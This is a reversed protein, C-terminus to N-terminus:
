KSMRDHYDESATPPTRRGDIDTPKSSSLSSPSSSGFSSSQSGSRKDTVTFNGKDIVVPKNGIENVANKLSKDLGSTDLEVQVKQPQNNQTPSPQQVVQQVVPAPAAQQTAQVPTPQTNVNSSQATPPAVQQVPQQTTVPAAQQVPAPQTTSRPVSLGSDTQTWGSPQSVPQQNQNPNFVPQPSQAAAPAAQKASVSQNATSTSPTSVSPKDHNIILTGDKTSSAQSTQPQSQSQTQTSKAAPNAAGDRIRKLDKVVDANLSGANTSSLVDAAQEPSINGSKIMKSQEHASQNAFKAAALGGAKSMATQQALDFTMEGTKTPNGEADKEIIMEATGDSKVSGAWAKLTESKSVAGTGQLTGAIDNRIGKNGAAFQQNIASENAQLTQDILKMGYDGKTTLLELSAMVKVNDGSNIASELSQKLEDANQNQFEAKANKVEVQEDSQAQGRIQSMLRQEARTPDRQSENNQMELLNQRYKENSALKQESEVTGAKFKSRERRASLRNNITRPTSGARALFGKFGRRNYNGMRQDSVNEFARKRMQKAHTTLGKGAGVNLVGTLRNLTGGATKMIVPTIFLPIITMGAGAIQVLFDESSAMVIAGALKSVSFVLAVAPFMALLVMFLKMWKRFLNETNPLLFAVFALPAVVVLLVILAQRLVLVIVVTLVAFLAAVLIPALTALGLWLGGSAAAGGVILAAAGGSVVLTVLNGWMNGMESQGGHWSTDGVSAGNIGSSMDSFLGSIGSGVINSVDVAIASIIFSANVLIASIILRPLMKKIGYNGLGRGTLQSYIIILFAIVFAVNAVTRVISWAANLAEYSDGGSGRSFMSSPTVLFREVIVYSADTISGIANFIPCLIWGVGEIQCSLDEGEEEGEIGDVSTQLITCTGIEGPGEHNGDAKWVGEAADCAAKTKISPDVTGGGTLICTGMEGPGEFNGDAQWIGGAANCEASTQISSGATSGSLAIQCGNYEKAGSPNSKEQVTGGNATCDAKSLQAKTFSCVKGTGPQVTGGLQSCQEQSIASVTSPSSLM